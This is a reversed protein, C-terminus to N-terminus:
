EGSRQVLLLSVKIESEATLATLTHKISQKIIKYMILEETLARGQNEAQAHKLCWPKSLCSQLPVIM